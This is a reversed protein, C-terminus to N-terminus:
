LPFNQECWWLCWQQHPDSPDYYYFCSYKCQAINETEDPPPPPTGQAPLASGAGLAGIAAAGLLIKKLM